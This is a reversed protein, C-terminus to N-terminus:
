CLEGRREGASWARLERKLVKGTPNRPLADVFVYDRPVKAGSLRERAWAKLDAEDVSAGPKKVVFARVREGWDPDKAGIVAVEAVAPHQELAAEVEAPYVNVGGSIVMDRKRGEIFYLGSADRRALDGVSFFGEKLSADTAARDNHYGEVMLKSKAWLEGAQGTEVERGDEAILRIDTGPVKHGITGPAARLEAPTAVTVIGFETAGYLNYLIDGFRDMAEISLPAPLPAGMSFIGRLSRLHYRELKEPGLALVRHLMTPVLATTTVGFRDVAALFPEPKFEDMLVASAGLMHTFALFGFATSHYLPCPVLHIDDVRMPLESILQFAAPMADKPFKRVAGKPKGTTGSTYIVVAADDEAAQDVVLPSREELLEEFRACGRPTVEGKPLGVIFLNEALAPVVKVTADVVPFLDHEFCIAKAGCNSALYALEEATSRWSVSVAAAGLRGAGGGALVFEPRNRMMNIISSGRGLGRRSLGAGVRDIGRDLEGFTLSEDHWFLAVKDPVNAALVRYIQSPNRADGVLARAAVALGRLHLEWMLGSQRAVHGFVRVRERAEDVREKWEGLASKAM